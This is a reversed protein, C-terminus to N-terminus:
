PHGCIFSLQPIIREKTQCIHFQNNIIENFLVVQLEIKKQNKKCLLITGWYFWNVSVPGM